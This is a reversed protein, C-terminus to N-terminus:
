KAAPMPKAYAGTDDNQYCHKSEQDTLGLNVGFDGSLLCNLRGHLKSVM